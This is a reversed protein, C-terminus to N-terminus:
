LKRALGLDWFNPDNVDVDLKALLKHMPESSGFREV